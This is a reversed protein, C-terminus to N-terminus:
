PVLQRLEQGKYRVKIRRDEIVGVFKRGFNGDLMLQPHQPLDLLLELLPLEFNELFSTEPVEDIHIHMPHFALLFIGFSVGEDAM